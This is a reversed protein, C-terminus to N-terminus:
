TILDSFYNKMKLMRSGYWSFIEGDVFVIKATCIKKLENAHNENFPFPESSLLIFDPALRNMEDGSLTAYRTTTDTLVNTLGIKRIVDGIFTNHGVAMYPDSWILYLISGTKKEFLDLDVKIQSNIKEALYERNTLKGIDNIMNLADQITYIDSMYVPYHASLFDIDEKTNEEKNGIILDPAIKQIISKNVKKTGGIRTKTKYWIEPHICFKTIGKVCDALDLDYLLETQSPVLSVIRKPYKPLVVKRQMQDVLEIM